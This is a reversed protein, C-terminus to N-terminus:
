KGGSDGGGSDEDPTGIDESAATTSTTAGTSTPGGSVAGDNRNETNSSFQDDIASFQADSGFGESAVAEAEAQSGFSDSQFGGTNGENRSLDQIAEAQSKSVTRVNGVDDSITVAEEDITSKFSPASKDADLADFSDDINEIQTDLIAGGVAEALVKGPAIFPASTGYSYLGWGVDMGLSDDAMIGQGGDLSSSWGGSSSLSTNTNTNNDGGGDFSVPPAVTAEPVSEVYRTNIPAPSGFGNTLYDTGEFPDMTLGSM